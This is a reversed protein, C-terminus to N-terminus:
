ILRNELRKITGIKLKLKIDVDTITTGMINILEKQVVKQILTDYRIKSEYNPPLRNYRELMDKIKIRVYPDKKFVYIFDDM